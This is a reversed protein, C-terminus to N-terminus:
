RASPASAGNAAAQDHAQVLQLGGAAITLWGGRTMGDHDYDWDPLVWRTRPKGDVELHHVQPRHTHGHVMISADCASFAQDIASPTVDMISMTKHRNSAMSRQRALDAIRRRVPLSLNLFLWQVAGCRVVRRFRQYSRDATCYEDGHSLLITGAETDLCVQDPLLRAGVHRALPEGLLFDRNGRGLWLPIKGSVQSFKALTTALWPPPSTLAFDDGIWADFIDGCLILADAQACAQDLFAHFALATAPTHPGLHIDSAVWVTGTLSLKNM